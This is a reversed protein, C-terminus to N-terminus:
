RWYADWGTKLILVGVVLAFAVRIFPAGHKLALKTGLVSGLVNAVAMPLM